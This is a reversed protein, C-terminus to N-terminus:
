NVSHKAFWQLAHLITKNRYEDKEFLLEHFAGEIIYPECCISSKNKKHLLQCLKKQANNDVISENGAQIITIPTLLKDINNYLFREIKLVENLWHTTVGGLQLDFQRSYLDVYRQYRKKSQSQTNKEFTKLKYKKQGLFYGPELNFLKDYIHLLKIFIRGVWMPVFGSNISILPACLAASAIKHPYKLMFLLGITSGMSHGLLHPKLKIHTDILTNLDEVYDDFSKVYGKRKDSLLRTSLGQGRHDIIFVNYHQNCLDFCLEKYKLYSEGRGPLILITQTNADNIFQAYKICTNDVGTFEKFEGQQWFSVLASEYEDNLQNEKTLATILTM